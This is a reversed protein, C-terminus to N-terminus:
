VRCTRANQHLILKEVKAVRDSGEVFEIQADVVKYFYKTESEPFVEYKPPNTAQAMLKGDEVTMTIAFALSLVYMGEYNKLVGPAVKVAKRVAIPQRRWASACSPYNEEALETTRETGTNCLVVIGLAKPQYIFVAASYGGTQGNHWVRSVTALSTGASASASRARSATIHNGPKM